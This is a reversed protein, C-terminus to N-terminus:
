KTAIIYLAVADCPWRPSTRIVGLTEAVKLRREGGPVLLACRDLHARDVQGVPDLGHETRALVGRLLFVQLAGVVAQTTEAGSADEQADLGVGLLQRATRSAPEM